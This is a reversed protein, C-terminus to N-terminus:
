SGSQPGLVCTAAGCKSCRGSLRTASRCSEQSARREAEGCCAGSCPRPQDDATHATAVKSVNLRAFFAYRDDRAEAEINRAHVNTANEVFCEIDYGAALKEVFRADAGSEDGRLRHNYHAVSVVIGLDARAEMLLALLAVSDAGGSV